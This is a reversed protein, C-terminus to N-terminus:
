HTGRLWDQRIALAGTGANPLAQIKYSIEQKDGLVVTVDQVAQKKVRLRVADGTKKSSIIQQYATATKVPTADVSLIVDRRRLGAQWAPSEYEVDNIYLSDGRERVVIGSYSPITKPTLDVQMGAYGFYKQYDPAKVTYIYDFIEPLPKGAVSTVVNKFEEETFGRKLKQYYDRYLTRMVDDLSRKNVTANRIALDLMAGVVPGKEYYSITKNVEDGTRGFPGDGWTEYSSEALSQFLKGPKSEYSVLNNHLANLFEDETMLGARRVVMYEYYVSLGESVFLMKTRSGKDYDFPGLEIPRIRKVNFHHFYEHALFNYMRTRGGPTSLSSGSFSVSASNLHEIGGGGPGIALFTYHKYPIDGIIAVASEVIKKLDAVFQQKDFDGMKYGVFYHPIGKVEFSALTELKGLLFPSDYLIDYDPATYTHHGGKISDLGTAITTWSEFPKVTVTVPHNIKGNPHLFSGAPSIYAREDDVVNTAVFAREAKVDYSVIIMKQRGNRVHWTNAERNWQVNHGGADTVSFNMVQDAYPLVQYYGPTWVPMKLIVATDTIGDYEMRIHFSHSAPNEFSMTFHIRSKDAALSTISICLILVTSIFRTNRM